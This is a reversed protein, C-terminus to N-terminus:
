TAGSLSLFYGRFIAEFDQDFFEEMKTIKRRRENREEEGRRMSRRKTNKYSITKTTTAMATPMRIKKSSM